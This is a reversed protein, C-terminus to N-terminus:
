GFYNDQVIIKNIKQHAIIKPAEDSKQSAPKYEGGINGLVFDNPYYL